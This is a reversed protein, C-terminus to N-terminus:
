AEEYEHQPQYARPNREWAVQTLIQEATEGVLQYPPPIIAKLDKDMGFKEYFDFIARCGNELSIDYDEFLQAAEEFYFRHKSDKRMKFVQGTREHRIKCYVAALARGQAEPEMDAASDDAEGEDLVASDPFDNNFASSTSSSFEEELVEDEIELSVPNAEIVPRRPGKKQELPPTCGDEQDAQGMTIPGAPMDGGFESSVRPQDITSGDDDFAELTPADIAGEEGSLFEEIAYRPVLHASLYGTEILKQYAPFVKPRELVLGVNCKERFKARFVKAANRAEEISAFRRLNIEPYPTVLRYKRMKLFGAAILLGIDKVVTSVSVGAERALTALAAWCEQKKQPDRPFHSYIAEAVLKTTATFPSGSTHSAVCLRITRPTWDLLQDLTSRKKPEAHAETKPATKSKMNRDMGNKDMLAM